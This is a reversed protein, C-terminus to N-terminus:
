WSVSGRMIRLLVDTAVIVMGLRCIRISLSVKGRYRSPRVGLPASANGLGRVSSVLIIGGGIAVSQIVGDCPFLHCMGWRTREKCRDLHSWCGCAKNNVGQVTCGYEFNICQGQFVAVRCSFRGGGARLMIM